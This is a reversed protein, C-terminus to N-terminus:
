SSAALRWWEDALGPDHRIRRGSITAAIVRMWNAKAGPAWPRLGSPWPEDAPTVDAAAGSDTLDIPAAGGSRASEGALRYREGDVLECPGRVIVSWGEDASRDFRDIEFVVVTGPAARLKTGPDTRVVVAAGDWLYNMPVIFPEGEWIVGLRGVETAALLQLCEDYPIVELRSPRNRAPARAPAGTGSTTM